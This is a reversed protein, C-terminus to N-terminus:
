TVLVPHSHCRVVASRAEAVPVEYEEDCFGKVFIFHSVVPVKYLRSLLRVFFLAFAVGAWVLQERRTPARGALLLAAAIVPGTTVDDM